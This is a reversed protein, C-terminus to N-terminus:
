YRRIAFNESGASINSDRRPALQLYDDPEGVIRAQDNVPHRVCECIFTGAAFLAAVLLVADLRRAFYGGMRRM